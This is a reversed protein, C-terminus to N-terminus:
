PLACENFFSVFSIRAQIVFSVNPYDMGRASVDSTFLIVNSRKRFQEATRTRNPQSKRSHIELVEIGARNFIDAMFETQRATAFFVIIKFEQDKSMKGELIQALARVQQRRYFIESKNRTKLSFHFFYGLPVTLLYQPVHSHTQEAADGVTDIFEYGPLLTTKAIEQIEPSITASFLLTQKKWPLLAQLHPASIHRNIKDIDRKFGM